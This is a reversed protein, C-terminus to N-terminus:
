ENQLYKKPVKLDETENSFAINTIWWRDDAFILQYTNIGRNEYTGILNKCYFSQFANAVGNFENIILGTSEEFFGDRSYAASYKEVFEDVPITSMQKGIPANSNVIHMTAGETFLSKYLEWDRKEGQPGSLIDLLLNTIGEISRIDKSTEQAQSVIGFCLIFVTISIKM